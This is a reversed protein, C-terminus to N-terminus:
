GASGVVSAVADAVADPRDMQVMHLSDELVVQRGAPSMSALHAHGEAWARRRDEGRVDGLATLVVLPVPPFPLRERLGALDAAMERYAVDEAIMAGIVTGRGYVARVDDDSTDDGQRSTFRMALRRGAPGLLRPVGTAGIVAGAAQAVPAAAAAFRLNPLCLDSEYSPDALVLGHVLVPHQRAFAEAHFGAISHAVVTVPAGIRAVLGTLIAVERRLSPPTRGAPSLGLGPRDFMILRYRDGLLDLTHRWDFWAGGLGHSILVPPGDPRGAEMVNVREGGAEVIEGTM